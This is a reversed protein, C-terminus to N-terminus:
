SEETRLQDTIHESDRTTSTHTCSSARTTSLPAPSLADGGALATDAFCAFTDGSGTAATVDGTTTGGATTTDGTTTADGAADGVTAVSAAVVAPDGLTDAAAVDGGAAAAISAGWAAAVATSTSTSV